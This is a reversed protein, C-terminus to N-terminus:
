GNGDGADGSVAEAHKDAIRQALDYRIQDDRIREDPYIEKYLDWEKWLLSGYCKKKTTNKSGPKKIDWVRNLAFAYGTYTTCSWRAGDELDPLLSQLKQAESLPPVPREKTARKGKGGVRFAPQLNRESVRANASSLRSSRRNGGSTAARDVAVISSEEQREDIGEKSNGLDDLQHDASCLDGTGDALNQKEAGVRDALGSGMRKDDVKSEGVEAPLDRVSHQDDRCHNSDLSSTRGNTEAEKQQFDNEIGEPAPSKTGQGAREGLGAMERFRRHFEAETQGEEVIAPTEEGNPYYEARGTSHTFIAM